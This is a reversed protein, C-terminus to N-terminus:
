FQYGMWIPRSEWVGEKVDFDLTLPTPENLTINNTIQCDNNDSVFVGYNGASLNFLDELTEDTSWLIYYPSVGGFVSLDIGGDSYNYCSIDYGNYDFASAINSVLQSPQNLLISDSIQCNNEDVVSLVYTGAFLNM